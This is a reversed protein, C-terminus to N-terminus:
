SPTLNSNIDVVTPTGTQNIVAVNDRFNQLTAEFNLIQHQKLAKTAVPINLEYLGSTGWAGDNHSGPLASDDSQANLDLITVNAKTIGAKLMRHLLSDEVLLESSVTFAISGSSTIIKERRAGARASARVTTEIREDETAPTVDIIDFIDEMGAQYVDNIDSTGGNPKGIKDDIQTESIYFYGEFGGFPM